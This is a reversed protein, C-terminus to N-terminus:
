PAPPRPRRRPRHRHRHLDGSRRLGVPEGLLRAGPGLHGQRRGAHRRRHRRRLQRRRLLQLRRPPQDGLLTSSACSGAGAVLTFRCIEVGGQSVMVEGTPTVGGGTVSATFTVAQGYTSPNPAAGVGAVTSTGKGVNVSTGGAASALFHGDGGYTATVATPNGVPLLHTTCSATTGGSVAAPPCDALPAGGATFAVTGTPAGAGPSGVAVTATLTVAAGYTTSAM